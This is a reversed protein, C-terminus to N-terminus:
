FFQTNLILSFSFTVSPLDQTDFHLDTITKAFDLKAMEAMLIKIINIGENAPQDMKMLFSGSIHMLQTKPLADNNEEIGMLENQWNTKPPQKPEIIKLSHIRGNPIKVLANQLANFAAAWSLNSKMYSELANLGENYLALSRENEMIIAAQKRLPILKAALFSTKEKYYTQEKHIHHLLFFLSAAMYSFTILIAKKNKNFIWIKKITNPTLNTSLGKKFLIKYAAGISGILESYIHTNDSYPYFPRTPIKLLNELTEILRINYPLAGCIFIQEPRNEPYKKKQQDHLKKIEDTITSNQMPVQHISIPETNFFICSLSLNHIVVLLTSINNNPFKRKFANYYHHSAPEISLIEIKLTELNKCFSDIWDKKILSSIVNLEWDEIHTTTYSIHEEKGTGLLNHIHTETIATQKSPNVKPVKIIKSLVAFGPLIIISPHIKKTQLILTKIISCAENAWATIDQANENLTAKTTYEISLTTEKKRFNTLTIVDTTCEIITISM